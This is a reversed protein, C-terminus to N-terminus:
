PTSLTDTNWIEWLIMWQGNVRKRVVIHKGTEQAPIGRGKPAVTIRYRGREVAMDGSIELGVITTHHEATFSEFFQRFDAEIAPKGELAPRNFPMSVASDSYFEMLRAADARVLSEPYLAAGTYDLYAVGSRVVRSLERERWEAFWADDALAQASVSLM